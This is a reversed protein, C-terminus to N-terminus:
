GFVGDGVDGHDVGAGDFRHAGGADFDDAGGVQHLFVFGAPGVRLEAGVFFRAFGDVADDLPANSCAAFGHALFSREGFEIQLLPNQGFEGGSAQVGVFAGVDGDVGVGAVWVVAGVGSDAFGM